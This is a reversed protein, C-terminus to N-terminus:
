KKLQQYYRITNLIEEKYKYIDTESELIFREGNKRGKKDSEHKHFLELVLKEPNNFYMRAITYYQNNDFLIACYSQRDRIAILEPKVIESGIAKIIEYGNLEQQTTVIKNNITPQEIEQKSNSNIANQLTNDIKDQMIQKLEQKILPRFIKIQKKTVTGEYVKKTILRTLGESPNDLETELVEKIDHKYKLENISDDIKSIDFNEKTFQKLKKIQSKEIDELDIDLFPTQDMVGRKKSDGYFKYEIGNTLIGMEAETVGYYRFLQELHKQELIKGVPKCEILINVKNNNLIALDVKEGSKTGVDATYEAKVEAPNEVDYGMIRLFPLILALKTTEESHIEDKKEPITKIFKLISEEFDM